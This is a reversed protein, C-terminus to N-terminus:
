RLLWVDKEKEREAAKSEREFALVERDKEREAAKSERAFALAEKEKESEQIDKYLELCQGLDGGKEVAEKIWSQFDM